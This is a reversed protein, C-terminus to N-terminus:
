SWKFLSLFGKNYIFKYLLIGNKERKYIINAFFEM